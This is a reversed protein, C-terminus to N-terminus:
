PKVEESDQVPPTSQESVTDKVAQSDRKKKLIIYHVRAVDGMYHEQRFENAAKEIHVFAKENEGLAEWYLGLYLHAYCLHNEMFIKNGGSEDMAAQIVDEPTNTGRLLGYIQKMPIRSDGPKLPLLSRRAKEHGVVRSNCLFHWFINEVDTANVSEHIKFQDVGKRFEGAYYFSIGRQWHYPTQAPRLSLYQDFSAASDGPRALQFEVIGKLQWLDAFGPDKMLGLEISKLSEDFHRFTDEIRGRFYHPEPRDPFQRAAKEALELAKPRDKAYVASSIRSFYQNLTLGNDESQGKANSLFSILALGFVAMRLSSEAFKMYNQSYM